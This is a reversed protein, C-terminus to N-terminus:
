LSFDHNISFEQNFYKLLCKLLILIDIYKWENVSVLLHLPLWM